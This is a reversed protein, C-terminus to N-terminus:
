APLATLAFLMGNPICRETSFGYRGTKCGTLSADRVPHLVHPISQEVSRHMGLPIGYNINFVRLSSSVFFLKRCFFSM